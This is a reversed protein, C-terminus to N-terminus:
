PLATVTYKPDAALVEVLSEVPLDAKVVVQATAADLNVAAENVGVLAELKGFLKKPCGECCMGEVSFSRVVYGAPVEGSLRDPAREHAARVTPSVYTPEDASFGVYALWAGAALILLLLLPRM